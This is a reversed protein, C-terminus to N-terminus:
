DMRWNYKDKGFAKIFGIIDDLKWPYCKNTDLECHFILGKDWDNFPNKTHSHGCLSILRSRLPKDSDYNASLVPYHCLFFRYKAYILRKAEVVEVINPCKIYEKVRNDSDHNGRIVHIKGNLQKVYEIGKNTDSLVLDGLCYVEDEARVVENHRKVIEKNMEEVSNFGRPEYLFPKNHCFHWDSTIFIAM